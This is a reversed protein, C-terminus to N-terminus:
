ASFMTRLSTLTRVMSERAIRNILPSAIPSVAWPVDRSLTLSELRLVVGGPVADYRWYSCLRWMFGRDEGASVEQERATGVDRLEAIRTSISRSVARTESVKDFDIQHETNYAATM